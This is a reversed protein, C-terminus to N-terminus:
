GNKLRGIAKIEEDDLSNVFSLVENYIESIAKHQAQTLLQFGDKTEYETLVDTLFYVNNVNSNLWKTLDYTYVDVESDISEYLDIDNLDKEEDELQTRIEEFAYSVWKYTYDQDQDNDYLLKLIKSQTDEPLKEKLDTDWIVRKFEDDKGKNFTKWNFQNNIISVAKILQKNM